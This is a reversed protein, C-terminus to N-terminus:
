DRAWNFTVRSAPLLTDLQALEFVGSMIGFAKAKRFVLSGNQLQYRYLGNRGTHTGDQVAITWTGDDAHLELEKRWSQNAPQDLVFEVEDPNALVGPEIRYDLRDHDRTIFSGSGQQAWTLPHSAAVPPGDPLHDLQGGAVNGIRDWSHGLSRFTVPDPIWRKTGEEIVYVKPDGSQALLTGEAPVDGVSFLSNTPSVAVDGRSFGLATLASPDTIWFKARGYTVYVNAADYSRIVTRDGPLDAVHALSDDPYTVVDSWRYGTAEFEVPNPIWSKGGGYIVYIRGDSQERLLRGRQLYNPMQPAYGSVFFGRWDSGNGHHVARDDPDYDTRFGLTTETLPYNSDWVFIRTEDGTQEYGYAVVQHDNGFQAIDRSQVLGLPQPVGADLLAKLKPFQEERTARAVGIGDIVTPHDPTRMFRFYMPWNDRISDILRWYIYDAVPTGDVPLTVNIPVSLRNHWYDLGAFAMGGCRGRTEIVPIGLISVKNAFNNAFAFGHTKPDFDVRM